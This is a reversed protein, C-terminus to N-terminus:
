RGLVIPEVSCMDRIAKSVHWVRKVKLDMQINERMGKNPEESSLRIETNQGRAGTRGM